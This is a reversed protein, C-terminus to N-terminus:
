ESDFKTKANFDRFLLARQRVILRPNSYDMEDVTLDYHFAALNKRGTGYVGSRSPPLTRSTLWLRSSRM